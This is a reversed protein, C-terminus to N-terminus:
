LCCKRFYVNVTCLSRPMTDCSTMSLSHVCETDLNHRCQKERSKTTKTIEILGCPYLGLINKTGYDKKYIYM